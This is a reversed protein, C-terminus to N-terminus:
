SRPPWDPNRHRFSVNVLRTQSVPTISLSQTFGEILLERFVPDQPDVPEKKLIKKGLYDPNKYLELKEITESALTRSLLLEIHGQMSTAGGGVTQIEDFPLINLEDEIWIRGVATYIPTVLFSYFTIGGVILIFLIMGIWKWGLFIRVYHRIQDTMGLRSEAGREDSM